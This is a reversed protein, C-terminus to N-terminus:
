KARDETTVVLCWTSSGGLPSGSGGNEEVELFNQWITELAETDPRQWISMPEPNGAATGMAM